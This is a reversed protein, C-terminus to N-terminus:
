TEEAYLYKKLTNLLLEVNLPKSLHEQMGADKSKQADDEFANASLAFIPITPADERDLERIQQTAELGGLVPMRIDMLIAAYEGITSAVFKEVADQGNIARVVQLNRHKLLTIAIKANLDHDEALLIKQGEFSVQEIKQEFVQIQNTLKLLLEYVNDRLMPKRMFCAVGAKQAEQQIGSWDYASLMVINVDDGMLKNLEGSLTVGDMGPMKWDVIVTNYAEGEAAARQAQRLGECPDTCYDAKVDLERLIATTCECTVEDDDILLIRLRDFAEQYKYGQSVLFHPYLPLDLIFLAGAKPTSVVEITGGMLDTLNKVITLGLGSGSMGREDEHEREFPLWMRKQFDASMGIGNDAIEFRVMPRAGQNLPSVRLSVIGADKDAYKVANSLLNMLIQKIRLEDGVYFRELDPATSVRFDVGREQATGSVLLTINAILEGLDFSESILRMKGSEIKSMDLIDNILALLFKSAGEINKLTELIAEPLQEITKAIETSGLISNMPTRIDHSMRSLFESKARNALEAAHLQTIAEKHNEETEVDKIFLLIKTHEDDYYRFFIRTRRYNKEQADFQMRVIFSFKTSKKLRALVNSLDMQRKFDGQEGARVSKSKKGWLDKYLGQELIEKRTINGLSVARYTQSGVDVLYIAKYDQIITFECIKELEKLEEQKRKVVTNDTVFGYIVPGDMTEVFTCQTLLWGQSGDRRIIRMEFTMGKEGAEYASFLSDTAVAVDEPMMYNVSRSGREQEYEEKTFGHIAYFADTAYLTTFYKDMLIKFAGMPADNKLYELMEQKQYELTVDKIRANSVEVDDALLYRSIYELQLFQEGKNFLLRGKEVSMTRKVDDNKIADSRLLMKYDQGICENLDRGILKCAPMNIAVICERNDLSLMPEVACNLMKRIFDITIKEENMM